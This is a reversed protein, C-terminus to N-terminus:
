EAGGPNDPCGGFRDNPDIVQGGPCMYVPAPENCNGWQNQGLPCYKASSIMWEWYYIQPLLNVSIQDRITNVEWTQRFIRDQVVYIDGIITPIRSQTDAIGRSIQGQTEILSQASSLTQDVKKQETQLVNVQQDLQSLLGKLREALADIQRNLDNTQKALDGQIQALNQNASALNRNTQNLNQDTVSLNQNTQDLQNSMETLRNIQVSVSQTLSTQVSNIQSNIQSIEESIRQSTSNSEALRDQITQVIAEQTSDLATCRLPGGNVDARMQGGLSECAAITTESNLKEEYCGEVAGTASNVTMVLPFTKSRLGTAGWTSASSNAMDMRLEAKYGTHAVNNVNSSGLESIIKLNLGTVRLNGYSRNTAVVERLTGDPNPVQLSSLSLGSSANLQGLVSPSSMIQGLLGRCSSPNLLARSVQSSIDNVENLIEAKKQGSHSQVMTSGIALTVMGILGSVVAMELLSYGKQSIGIGRSRL